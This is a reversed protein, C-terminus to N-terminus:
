WTHLINCFSQMVDYVFNMKYLEQARIKNYSTIGYKISVGQLDAKIQLSISFNFQPFSLHTNQPCVSLLPPLPFQM